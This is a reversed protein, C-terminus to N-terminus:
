SGAVRRAEARVTSDLDPRVIFSALLPTRLSPSLRQLARVLAAQVFPSREVVLAQAAADHLALTDASRGLAEAAAERVNASPDSLLSTTLAAIILLEANADSSGGLTAVARYRAAPSRDQLAVVLQDHLAALDHEERRHDIFWGAGIILIASAAIALAALGPRQRRRAIRAFFLRPLESAPIPLPLNELAAFLERDEGPLNDDTM